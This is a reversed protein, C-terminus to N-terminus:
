LQENYYKFYSKKNTDFTLTSWTIDGARVIDQYSVSYESNLKVSTLTTRTIKWNDDTSTVRIKFNKLEVTWIYLDLAESENPTYIYNVTTAGTTATLFVIRTEGNVVSVTYNTDLVLEWGTDSVTISAVVTGAGNKNLLTYVTGAILDTGVAENTVAVPTGAVDTKTWWFLLYMNDRNKNELLEFTVSWTRNVANYVTWNDDSDVEILDTANITTTLWRVSPLRTWVEPGSEPSFEFIWALTSLDKPNNAAM